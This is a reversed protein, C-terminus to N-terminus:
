EAKTESETESETKTGETQQPPLPGNTLHYLGM